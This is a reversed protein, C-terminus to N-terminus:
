MTDLTEDIAQMLTQPDVLGTIRKFLKGKAFLILTPLARIAYTAAHNQNHDVDIKFIILKDHRYNEQVIDLNQKMAKCPGCWTAFFDVLLVGGSTKNEEILEELSPEGPDQRGWFLFFRGKGDNEPTYPFGDTTKLQGPVFAMSIAANLPRKYFKRSVGQQNPRVICAELPCYDLSSIVNLLTESETPANESANCAGALTNHLKIEGQHLLERPLISDKAYGQELRWENDFPTCNVNGLTSFSGLLLLAIIPVM